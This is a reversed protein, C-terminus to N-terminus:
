FLEKEPKWKEIDSKIDELTGKVWEKERPYKQHIYHEIDRYHETRYKWVVETPKPAQSLVSKAREEPTKSIGVKYLGPLIENYM